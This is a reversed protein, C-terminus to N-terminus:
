RSKAVLGEKQKRTMKKIEIERKTASSRTHNEERFVVEEPQSFGFFRAGKRTGSHETFRREIDKTIGTYLKGSETKIIYVKWEKEEDV